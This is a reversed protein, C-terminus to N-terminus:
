FDQHPLGYESYDIHEIQEHLSHEITQTMKKPCALGIFKSLWKIDISLHEIKMENNATM